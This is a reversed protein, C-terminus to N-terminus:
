ELNAIKEPHVYYPNSFQIDASIFGDKESFNILTTYNRELDDIIRDIICRQERRTMQVNSLAIENGVCITAEGVVVLTFRRIFYPTINDIYDNGCGYQIYYNLLDYTKNIIDIYYKKKGLEKIFKYDKEERKSSFALFGGILLAIFLWFFIAGVLGTVELIDFFGSM